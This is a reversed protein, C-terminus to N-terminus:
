RLLMEASGNPRVVVGELGFTFNLITRCLGSRRLPAVRHRLRDARMLYVDGPRLGVQKTGTDGAYELYGGGVIEPANLVMVMTIAYDDLHWGHTDGARELRTIIVREIVNDCDTLSAGVLKEISRRLRKSNYSSMLEVDEATVVGSVSTIHRPTRSQPMAFDKRIGVSCMANAKDLLRGRDSEHLANPLVVFGTSKFERSLEESAYNELFDDCPLM